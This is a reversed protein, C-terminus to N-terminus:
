LGDDLQFQTASPIATVVDGAGFGHGIGGAAGPVGGDGADNRPERSVFRAGFM